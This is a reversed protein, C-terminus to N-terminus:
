WPRAPAAIRPLASGTPAFRESGEEWAAAAADIEAKSRAVFNWWMVIPSEFPPGGLLMALSPLGTSFEISERGPPVYCLQGVTVPRGVVAVAGELVVIAHEDGVRVPIETTGARLALQVGMHDTERRASSSVEALEGVLVTAEARGIGVRPLERHHEFTPEDHRTREPQAVWL